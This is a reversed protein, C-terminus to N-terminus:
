EKEHNKNWQKVMRAIDNVFLASQKEAEKMYPMPDNYSDLGFGKSSLSFIYENRISKEKKLKSSVKSFLGLLQEDPRDFSIDENIVDIGILLNVGIKYFFKHSFFNTKNVINKSTVEHSFRKLHGIIIDRLNGSGYLGNVKRSSPLYTTIQLEQLTKIKIHSIVTRDLIKLWTSSFVKEGRAENFFKYFLWEMKQPTVGSAYLVAILAGLGHGSVLHVKVGRRNLHKLFIVHAIAKHLGPGFVLGVIPVKKEQLTEQAEQEITPYPGMSDEGIETAKIKPNAYIKPTDLTVTNFETDLKDSQVIEDKSYFRSCGFFIIFIFLLKL